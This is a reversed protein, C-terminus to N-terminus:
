FGGRGGGLGGGKGGGFGGQGGGPGGPGGKGGGGPGGAGPQVIGTVVKDGEQLGSTVEVSDGAELGTTIERPEPKADKTDGRLVQVVKKGKDTKVARSPIVLVDKKEAVVFECEANLGPRLRPDPKLVQIRTKITTVNQDTTGLPNTREVRGMVTQDPLADLTLHVMQGPTVQSIDSEDVSAEVFIRSLDGIQVLSTGQSNFSQGSSIITGQEVYKQLIVGDRPARITTSDLV